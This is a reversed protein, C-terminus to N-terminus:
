ELLGRLTRADTVAHGEYDNNFYAYLDVGRALWAGARDAVRRLRARPYGGRYPQHSADPGHFRLYTWGATLEWPHDELLDHICLAADHDALAALVDDQLWSRDRLEVAWRYGPPAASLFDVLRPTDKRWRPPLQVLNPGLAPGLREAREVHNPLWTAADRLKKRHTGFQGVKVAYVFGPPAAAAWRDVTSQQPLRYFTANLEVTDFWTAYAAFWERRPLDAPYVSGRWDPYDWGSCGIRTRGAV